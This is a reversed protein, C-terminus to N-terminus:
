NLHTKDEPETFKGEGSSVLGFAAVAVKYASRLDSVAKTTLVSPIVPHGTESDHENCVRAATNCLELLAESANDVIHDMQKERSLRKM